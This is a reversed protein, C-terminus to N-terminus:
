NQKSAKISQRKTSENIDETESVQRESKSRTYVDM